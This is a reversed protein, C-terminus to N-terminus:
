VGESEARTLAVYLLRRPKADDEEMYGMSYLHVLSSVTTVVVLMVVTLRDVRISWYAQMEGSGIWRFLEISGPEDLSFFAIWSLVACFFLIATPIVMAMREGISRGFLGAILAGLLPAFLITQLM